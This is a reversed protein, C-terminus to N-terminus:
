IGQLFNFGILMIKNVHSTEIKLLAKKLCAINPLTRRAIGLIKRRKRNKPHVAATSNNALITAM